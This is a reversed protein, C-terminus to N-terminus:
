KIWREMIEDYGVFWLESHKPHSDASFPNDRPQRDFAATVGAYYAESAPHPKYSAEPITQANDHTAKDTLPLSIPVSTLKPAVATIAKVMMSVIAQQSATGENTAWRQVISAQKLLNTMATTPDTKRYRSM